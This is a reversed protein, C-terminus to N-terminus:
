TLLKRSVENVRSFPLEFAIDSLLTRANTHAYRICTNQRIKVDEREMRRIIERLVVRSVIQSERNAM